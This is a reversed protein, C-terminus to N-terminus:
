IYNIKRACAQHYRKSHNTGKTGVLIDGVKIDKRCLMCQLAPNKYNVDDRRSEATKLRGLIQSTLKYTIIPM